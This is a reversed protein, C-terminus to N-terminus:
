LLSIYVACPSGFMSVRKDGTKKILGDKEMKNIIPNIAGYHSYGHNDALHLFVDEQTFTGLKKVAGIVVGKNLKSAKNKLFTSFKM